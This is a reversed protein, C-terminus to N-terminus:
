FAPFRPKYKSLFKIRTTEIEEPIPKHLSWYKWIPETIERMNEYNTQYEWVLQNICNYITTRHKGVFMSIYDFDMDFFYHLIYCYYFRINKHERKKNNKNKIFEIFPNKFVTHILLIFQLMDSNKVEKLEEQKILPHNEISVKQFRQFVYIMEHLNTCKYIRSNLVFILASHLHDHLIIEGDMLNIVDVSNNFTNFEEVKFNDIIVPIM